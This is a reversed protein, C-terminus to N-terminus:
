NNWVDPVLLGRARHAPSKLKIFVFYIIGVIITICALTILIPAYWFASFLAGIWVVYSIDCILIILSIYGFVSMIKNFIGFRTFKHCFPCREKLGRYTLKCNRCKREKM